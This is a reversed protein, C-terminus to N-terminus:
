LTELLAHVDVPRWGAALSQWWRTLTMETTMEFTISSREGCLTIRQWRQEKAAAALEEDVVAWAQAWAAWDEALAPARLREDVSPPTGSAAQPAGCGSLWFSNVVLQGRAERESNVPHTYLLMQVESQLRRILREHVGATLWRDVNRGIVRDLSACPMQALSEHALYWRPPAGYYVAFGESSFTERTADFLARSTAEDLLLAEPDGLSMQETGLHWHTPSLLAMPLGADPVGDQAALRAAFPLLGDRLTWGLDRAVAREHPTSLSLENGEDRTAERMRRLCAQLGPWRLTKGAARGAPSLPAAFPVVLHAASPM